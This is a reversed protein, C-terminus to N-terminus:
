RPQDEFREQNITMMKVDAQPQNNVIGEEYVKSWRLRFLLGQIAVNTDAATSALREAQEPTMTWIDSGSRNPDPQAFRRRMAVISQCGDYVHDRVVALLDYNHALRAQMRAQEVHLLEVLSGEKATTWM